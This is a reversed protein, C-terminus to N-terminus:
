ESGRKDADERVLSSKLERPLNYKECLLPPFGVDLLYYFRKGIQYNEPQFGLGLGTFQFPVEKPIDLLVILSSTCNKSSFEFHRNTAFLTLTYQQEPISVAFSGGSNIFSASYKQSRIDRIACACEVHLCSTRGLLLRAFCLGIRGFIDDSGIIIRISASSPDKLFKKLTSSVTACFSDEFPGYINFADYLLAYMSEEKLPEVISKGKVLQVELVDLIDVDTNINYPDEMIIKGDENNFQRLIGQITRNQTKIIVEKGIYDVM